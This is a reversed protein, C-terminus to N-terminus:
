GLPWTALEMDLKGHERAYAMLMDLRAVGNAGPNPVVGLTVLVGVANGEPDLVGGGMEGPAGPVVTYTLLAWEGGTGAVVGERYSPAAALTASPAFLRLRDGVGYASGDALAVPGGEPLSPNVRHASARDLHFIAFDNYELANPDTEGIEAMTDFSRYILIVINQEDGVTGIAGVYLDRVCYSTTGLFVAGNDPRHFVFNVPCDGTELRIVSGPRIDAEEPTAWVPEVTARPGPAVDGRQLPEGQVACGALAPFLALVVLLRAVMLTRVLM